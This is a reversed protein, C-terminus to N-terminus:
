RSFGPSPATLLGVTSDVLNAIFAERELPIRENREQRREVDALVSTVLITM